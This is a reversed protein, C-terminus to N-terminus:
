NKQNILPKGIKIHYEYSSIANNGKKHFSAIMQEASNKFIANRDKLLVKSIYEKQPVDENIEESPEPKSPYVYKEYRDSWYGVITSNSDKDFYEHRNMFFTDMAPGFKEMVKEIDYGEFADKLSEGNIRRTAIL